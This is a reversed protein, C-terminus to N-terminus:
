PSKPSPKLRHRRELWNVVFVSLAYLGIWFSIMIWQLRLPAHIAWAASAACVIMLAYEWLVTKRHGWGLRVLRQYYHTKHAQWITEGRVLRRLLTVTADVTFPSFILIAAWFPFINEVAGWISMAAAFLGLTSSGADGLFIKAPPFNFVLFGAAAAAIISNLVTFLENGMNWGLIAFTGFGIAAMGSAFGDMGDMFNYLNIMWVIFLLTAPISLLQPLSWEISGIWIVDLTLGGFMILAAVFVHVLIRYAPPVQYRDDVFSVGALLVGAAAIWIVAGDHTGFEFAGYTAAVLIAALVAVGGTRPTPRSHLSRENPYDLVYFL